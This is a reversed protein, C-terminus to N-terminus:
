TDHLVQAAGWTSRLRGWTFLLPAIEKHYKSQAGLKSAECECGNLKKANKAIKVRDNVHGPSESDHWLLALIQDPRESREALTHTSLVRSRLDIDDM